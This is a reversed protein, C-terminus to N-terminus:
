ASPGRVEAFAALAGPPQRRRLWRGAWRRVKPICHQVSTCKEHLGKGQAGLYAELIWELDKSARIVQPLMLLLTARHTPPPSASAPPLHRRRRSGTGAGVTAVSSSRMAIISCGAPPQLWLLCSGVWWSTTMGPQLSTTRTPVQSATGWSAQPQQCDFSRGIPPRQGYQLCSHRLTRTVGGCMASSSTVWCCKLCSEERM